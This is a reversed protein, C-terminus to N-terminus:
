IRGTLCFVPIELVNLLHYQHLAVFLLKFSPQNNLSMVLNDFIKANAAQTLRRGFTGSNSWWCDVM